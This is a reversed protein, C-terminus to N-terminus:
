PVYDIHNIAYAYRKIFLLPVVMMILLALIPQWAYEIPYGNLAQNSYILFYDRLPFIWSLKILLPSMATTPYSFGAMSISLVGVLASASMSMRMQGAFIGFMVLGFAQAALVTLVGICMMPFLGSQCPFCLVKYLYVYMMWFQLVYLVTQPLLKGTIFIPVSGGAMDHYVFKQTGKKWEMGIAYTTTLMIMLIVIGPVICNTLLVSYNLTSNSIPHSEIVIPQLVGMIQKDTLGKARLTERTIALGTMESTTRLDKMLLSAPLFYADNTYFSIQPQKSSIAAQTTGKPIYMFAYIEGHLVAEKAAEFTPYRRSLDTTKMSGLIRVIQRTTSTNDEDVLGTPLKQPLGESMMTSFFIACFIPAILMCFVLLPRRIFIRLERVTLM